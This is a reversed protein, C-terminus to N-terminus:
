GLARQKEGNRFDRKKLCAPPVAEPVFLRRRLGAGAGTGGHRHLQRAADPGAPVGSIALDLDSREDFDERSSRGFPRSTRGSRAGYEDVSAPDCTGTAGGSSRKEQNRRLASIDEHSSGVPDAMGIHSGARDIEFRPVGGTATLMRRPSHVAGQCTGMEKPDLLRRGCNRYRRQRARRGAISRERRAAIGRSQPPRRAPVPGHSRGPKPPPLSLADFDVPSLDANGTIALPRTSHPECRRCRRALTARSYRLRHRSRRAGM